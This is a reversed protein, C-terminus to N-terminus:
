PNDTVSVISSPRHTLSLARSIGMTWRGDDMTWRGDDMTWRGDDMTWRGDDMTWRGDIGLQDVGEGFYYGGHLGGPRPGRPNGAGRVDGDDRVAPAVHL